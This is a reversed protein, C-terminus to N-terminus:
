NKVSELLIEDIFNKIKLNNLKCYIKVKEHTSKYVQISTKDSNYIKRRESDNKKMKDM